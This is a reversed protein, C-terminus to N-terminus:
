VYSNVMMGKGTVEAATKLEVENIRLYKPPPLGLRAQYCATSEMLAMRKALEQEFKSKDRTSAVAAVYSYREAKTLDMMAYQMSQYPPIPLIYGM